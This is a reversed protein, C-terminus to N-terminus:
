FRRPNQRDELMSEFDRNDEGEQCSRCIPDEGRNGSWDGHETIMKDCIHCWERKSNADAFIKEIDINRIKALLPLKTDSLTHQEERSISFDGDKAGLKSVVQIITEDLDAAPINNDNMFDFLEGLAEDIMTEIDSDPNSVPLEIESKWLNILDDDTRGWGAKKGIAKWERKTMSITKKDNATKIHM